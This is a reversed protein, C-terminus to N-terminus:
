QPSGSSTPGCTQQCSIRPRVVVILVKYADPAQCVAESPPNAPPNEGTAPPNAPPTVGTGGDQHVLNPADCKNNAKDDLKEAYRAFLSNRCDQIWQLEDVGKGFDVLDSAINGIKAAAAKAKDDGSALSSKLSTLSGPGSTGQCATEADAIPTSCNERLANLASRVQALTGSNTAGKPRIADVARNLSLLRSKFQTIEAAVSASATSKADDLAKSIDELEPELSGADPADPNIARGTDPNMVDRIDAPTAPSHGDYDALWQLKIDRYHETADSYSKGDIPIAAVDTADGQDRCQGVEGNLKNIRVRAAKADKDCQIQAVTPGTAPAPQESPAPAPAPAPQDVVPAAPSIAPASNPAGGEGGGQQVTADPHDVVTADPHEVTADPQHQLTADTGADGDDNTSEQAFAPGTLVIISLAVLLARPYKM